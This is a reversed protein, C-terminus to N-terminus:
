VEQYFNYEDILSDLRLNLDNYHEVELNYRTLYLEYLRDTESSDREKKLRVLLNNIKVLLNNQVEIMEELLCIRETVDKELIYIQHIRDMERKYELEAREVEECYLTFSAVAVGGLAVFLIPILPLPM